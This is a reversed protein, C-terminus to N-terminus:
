HTQQTDISVHGLETLLRTQQKSRACLGEGEESVMIMYKGKSWQDPRSDSNGAHSRSWFRVTSVEACSGRQSVAAFWNIINEKGDRMRGGVVLSRAADALGLM